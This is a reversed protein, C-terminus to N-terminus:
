RKEMLATTDAGYSWAAVVRMGARAKKNIDNIGYAHVYRDSGAVDDSVVEPGVVTVVDDNQQLEAAVRDAAGAEPKVIATVITVRDSM